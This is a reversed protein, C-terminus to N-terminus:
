VNIYEELSNRIKKLARLHKCKNKRFKFAPCSCTDETLLYYEKGDAVLGVDTLLLRVPQEELPVSWEKYIKPKYLRRVAEVPPIDETVSWSDLEVQSLDDWVYVRGNWVRVDVYALPDEARFDAIAVGKLIAIRQTNRLREWWTFYTNWSWDEPPPPLNKIIAKM